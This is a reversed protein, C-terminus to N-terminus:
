LHNPAELLPVRYVAFVDANIVDETQIRVAYSNRDLKEITANLTSYTIQLSKLIDGENAFAWQSRDDLRVLLYVEKQM